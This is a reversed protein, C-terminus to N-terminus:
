PERHRGGGGGTWGRPAIDWIDWIPSFRLDPTQLATSHHAHGFVRGAPSRCPALPWAACFGSRVSAGTPKPRPLVRSRLNRPHAEASTRPFRLTTSPHLPLSTSRCIPLLPARPRIGSRGPRPMSGAAVRRLLWVARLCRNAKAPAVSPVQPEEAPSRRIRPSVQRNGQIEKPNEPAHGFVRGAASRCQALPWASSFPSSARKQPVSKEPRAPLFTGLPGSRALRSRALRRLPLSAFLLILLSGLLYM